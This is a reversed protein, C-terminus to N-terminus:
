FRNKGFVYIPHQLAKRLICHNEGRITWNSTKIPDSGIDILEQVMQSRLESKWAANVTLLM